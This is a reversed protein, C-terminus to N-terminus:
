PGGDAIVDDHDAGRVQGAARRFRFLVHLAVHAPEVNTGALPEPNEM